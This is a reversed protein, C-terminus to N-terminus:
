TCVYYVQLCAAIPQLPGASSIYAAQIMCQKNCLPKYISSNDIRPWIQNYRRSSERPMPKIDNSM